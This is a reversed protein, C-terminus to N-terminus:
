SSRREDFADLAQRNVEGFRMRMESDGAVASLHPGARAAASPEAAGRPSSRPCGRIDTLVLPLGMAAAEVASRSIGRSAVRFLIDM